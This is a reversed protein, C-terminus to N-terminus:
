AEIPRADNLPTAHILNSLNSYQFTPWLLFSNEKLSFARTSWPTPTLPGNSRDELTDVFRYLNDLEINEDSVALPTAETSPKDLDISPM